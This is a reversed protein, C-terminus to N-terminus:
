SQEADRRSKRQLDAATPAAMGKMVIEDSITAQSFCSPDAVFGPTKTVTSMEVIGSNAVAGLMMRVLMEPNFLPSGTKIERTVVVENLTKVPMQVCLPLGILGGSAEIARRSHGNWLASNEFVSPVTCFCGVEPEARLRGVKTEEKSAAFFMRDIVGQHLHEVKGKIGDNFAPFM